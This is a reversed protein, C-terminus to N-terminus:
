KLGLFHRGQGGTPRIEDHGNYMHIVNCKELEKKLKTCTIVPTAKGTRKTNRRYAAVEEDAAARM